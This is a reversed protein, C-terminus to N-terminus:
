FELIEKEKDAVIVEVKKIHDDTVKQAEDQLRFLDDESIEKAKKQSKLREIAERRVNRIAVKCEEATKKVLKVLEKRREETLPPVNVRIIKGDNTPTLGLDSKLIAKEIDGLIKIDWPQITLLRSEPIAVSAVQNLPMSTGYYDVNIGELLAASARGTRVRALDRDFAGIAKDMKGGAEQIETKKM